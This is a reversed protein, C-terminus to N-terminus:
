ANDKVHSELNINLKMISFYAVIFDKDVNLNTTIIHRIYWVMSMIFNVIKIYVIIYFLYECHVDNILM